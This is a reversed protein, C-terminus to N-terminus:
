RTPQVVEIGSTGFLVCDDAQGGRVLRWFETEVHPAPSSNPFIEVEIGRTCVLRVGGYSDAMFTTVAVPDELLRTM